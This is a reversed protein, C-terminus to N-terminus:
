TEGTVRIAMVGPQPPAITDTLVADLISAQSRNGADDIDILEAHVSANDAGSFEESETDAIDPNIVVIEGGGVSVSLERSMTDAATRPPLTLVFQLMGNEERLLHLGMRGPRSLVFRLMEIEAAVTALGSEITRRLKKTCCNCCM